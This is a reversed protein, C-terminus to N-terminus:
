QELLLWPSSTSGRTVYVSFGHYTMTSDLGFVGKM